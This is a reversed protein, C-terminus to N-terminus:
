ASQKLCFVFFERLIGEDTIGCAEETIGCAETRTKQTVSSETQSYFSHKHKELKKTGGRTYAQRHVPPCFATVRREVEAGEVAVVLGHLEQHAKRRTATCQLLLALM